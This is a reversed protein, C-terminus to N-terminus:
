SLVRDLFAVSREFMEIRNHLKQVTHGEDEFILLECEVGKSQLVGAIHEPLLWRPTRFVQHVSRARPAALTAMDVASKGFGLVVVRRDDFVDLSHVDRETLVDGTFDAAGRLCLRHKGDSYQGVAIVAYAFTEDRERAREGDSARVRVQWGDPLPTMAVVEHRTRVDLECRAVAHALYDRIQRGTPHLDPAFPWPVDSLHYQSAVNQLRVGPYAAAWVGGPEAGREFVVPAFGHERLV